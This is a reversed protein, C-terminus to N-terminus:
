KIIWNDLNTIDLNNEIFYDKAKQITEEKTSAVFGKITIPFFPLCSNHTSITLSWEYTFIDYDEEKSFLNIRHKYLLPTDLEIPLAIYNNALSELGYRNFVRTVEAKNLYITTLKGSLPYLYDNSFTETELLHLLNM